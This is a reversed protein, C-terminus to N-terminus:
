IDSLITGALQLWRPSFRFFLWEILNAPGIIETIGVKAEGQLLIGVFAAIEYGTTDKWPAFTIQIQLPFALSKVAM